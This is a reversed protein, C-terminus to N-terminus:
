TTVTAAVYNVRLPIRTLLHGDVELDLWYLGEEQLITRVQLALTVGHEDGNLQVEGPTALRVRAARPPHLLFELRYTGKAPGSKLGILATLEVTQGQAQPPIKVTDIVRIVSLVGDVENLVKECFTALAVFPLPREPDPM